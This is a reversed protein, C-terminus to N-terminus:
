NFVSSIQELIWEPRELGVSIRITGPFIGLNRRMEESLARHSTSAPHSLTTMPEGLSPCFPIKECNVIFERAADIGGELHILMMHGFLPRESRTAFLRRALEHDPHEPLGPYVVGQVRPHASLNRALQEATQSAQQMRPVLTVLGREALWADWPSCSMGWTAVVSDARTTWDEGCRKGAALMGLMVDGHGNMIKTVSEVVLDAGREIPRCLVPSAFTNDVLVLCDDPRPIASIADLDVLRLDPNSLTEVVVLRTEPRVAASVRAPELPDVRTTEIGLRSAEPGFLVGTRGYLRESLVVHDGSRLHALFAVSFAAMGSSAVTAWRAKHLLRCKEALLDANPHGDRQYVYGPEAGGLRRDAQEPSECHYVVAPYVPPRSPRSDYLELGEFRACIEAAEGPDDQKTMSDAMTGDAGARKEFYHRLQRM